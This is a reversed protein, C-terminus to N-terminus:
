IIWKLYQKLYEVLFLTYINTYVKEPITFNYYTTIGLKTISYYFINYPTRINNLNIPIEASKLYIKKVNILNDMKFITKYANGDTNKDSYYSDYNILLNEM